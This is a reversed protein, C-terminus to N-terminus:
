PAEAAYLVHRCLPHGPALRPHDFEGRRVLGIREMVAQSRVNGLATFSVVRPLRLVEWAHRLVLGAAESAAGRGWAARALRWGIERTEASRPVFPLEFAVGALGVFGAFPLDPLELAWLGHGFQEIHLRIRGALADSQERTLPASFHQMVEPDANLAAFPALDEDRWPRLLVRESRLSAPAQLHASTGTM